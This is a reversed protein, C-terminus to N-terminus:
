EDAADSTYLLCDVAKGAEMSAPSSGLNQFVAAEWSQTVVNNGAFVVRYKYKRNPDGEKLESGKETCIGHLRGFHVTEGKQKAEWAVEDWERITHHWVGKSWLRGWETKMAVMAKEQAMLEKRPVPRAVMVLDFLPGRAGYTERHEESTAAWCM